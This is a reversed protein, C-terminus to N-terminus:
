LLDHENSLPRAQLGPKVLSSWCCDPNYFLLSGSGWDPSRGQVEMERYVQLLFLRLIGWNVM